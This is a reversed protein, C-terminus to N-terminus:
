RILICVPKTVTLLGDAPSLMGTRRDITFLRISDSQQNAALLYNGSPDIAFNRPTKGLTAQHQILQLHGTKRDASYVAISDHGRNSGYIFKGNPHIHVDAGTNEGSYGEPLLSVTQIGALVGTKPDVRLSTITSNLENIVFAREADSGFTFHRPGAGAATKFFPTEAPILQGTQDNFRYVMVKDIGLDCVYAFRNDPSLNVSHAHAKEQRLKNPGSGSHQQVDVAEGLSGDTQVPLVSVNGGTYNAILVFKGNRSFTLHCPHEGQSSRTNLLVLDCGDRSIRFVSASGGPKGQYESTEGVAVLLHGDPSIALFSPNELGPYTKELRLNGSPIEMRALNIGEGYGTTYTGIFLRRIDSSVTGGAWVLQHGSYAAGALGIGTRMLFGRRDM